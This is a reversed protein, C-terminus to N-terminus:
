VSSVDGSLHNHFRTAPHSPQIGPARVDMGANTGDSTWLRMAGSADLGDFLIRGGGAVLGDPSLSAGGGPAQLEHTGADTGDSVWLNPKISSDFGSLFLAGFASLTLSAPNLGVPSAGAVRIQRMGSATGDTAWLGTGSGTTSKAIFFAQDLAM